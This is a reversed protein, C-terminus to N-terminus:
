LCRVAESHTDLRHRHSYESEVMIPQRGRRTQLNIVLPALLNATVTADEAISIITLCLVERGMVPQQYPRLQLAELDEPPIALRFGPCAAQAPLTIFCLDPQELSQLFVLPETAPQRLVLFCRRQEFGPLGDPFEVVADASYELTGFYKTATKNMM